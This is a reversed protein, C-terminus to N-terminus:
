LVSEGTMAKVMKRVYEKDFEIPEITYKPSLLHHVLKEYIDLIRHTGELITKIDEAVFGRKDENM